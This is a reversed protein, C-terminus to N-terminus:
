VGRALPSAVPAAAPTEVRVWAAEGARDDDTEIELTTDRERPKMSRDMSVLAGSTAHSRAAGKEPAPARQLLARTSGRKSIPPVTSASPSRPSAEGARACCPM